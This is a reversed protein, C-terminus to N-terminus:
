EIEKGNYRPEYQVPATDWDYEKFASVLQPYVQKLKELNEDDAYQVATALSQEFTCGMNLSWNFSGRNM